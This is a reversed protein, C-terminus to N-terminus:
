ADRLAAWEADRAALAATLKALAEPDAQPAYAALAEFRRETDPHVAERLDHQFALEAPTLGNPHATAWQFAAETVAASGTVTSSQTTTNM